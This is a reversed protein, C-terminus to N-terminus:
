ASIFVVKSEFKLVCIINMDVDLIGSTYCQVLSSPIAVKFLTTISFFSTMRNMKM